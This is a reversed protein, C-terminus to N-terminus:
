QYIYNQVSMSYVVKSCGDCGGILELRARAEVKVRGSLFNGGLDESAGRNPVAVYSPAGRPARM